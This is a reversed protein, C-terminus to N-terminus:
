FPFDRPVLNYPITKKWNLYHEPADVCYYPRLSTQKEMASAMKRGLSKIRSGLLTVFKPGQDWLFLNQDRDWPNHDSGM